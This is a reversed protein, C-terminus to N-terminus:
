KDDDKKGASPSVAGLVAVVLILIASAGKFFPQANPPFAVACSPLGAALAALGLMVYHISQFTRDPIM